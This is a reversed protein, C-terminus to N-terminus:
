GGFPANLRVITFNLVSAFSVWALYPLLLAGAIRDRRGAVVVMAVISLWLLGVEMLAWDPRRQNFFLVSWLVNFVGNIGFVALLAGRGPRAVDSRWARVAAIVCLLYLTTWVPGFLWDPPQWSPKNLARYWPGIDTALGGVLSLAVAWLAAVVVPKWLPGQRM